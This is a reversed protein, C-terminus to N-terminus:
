SESQFGQVARKSLAWGTQLRESSYDTGFFPCNPLVYEM